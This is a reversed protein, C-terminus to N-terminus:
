LRGGSRLRENEEKYWKEITAKRHICGDEGDRFTFAM